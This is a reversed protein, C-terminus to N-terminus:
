AIWNNIPFSSLKGQLPPVPLFFLSFSKERKWSPRGDEYMTIKQKGELGEQKM